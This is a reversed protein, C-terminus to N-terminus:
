DTISDSVADVEGKVENEETPVSRFFSRTWRIRTQDNWYLIDNLLQRYSLTQGQSQLYRVVRGLIRVLEPTSDCALLRRLRGLETKQEDESGGPCCNRLATGIDLMGDKDPMARAIAAGVLGYAAREAERELRCFPLLHEWAYSETAPNDARRLAARCASDTRVRAISRSVFAAAPSVAETKSEM